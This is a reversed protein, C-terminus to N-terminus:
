PGGRSALSITSHHAPADALGVGLFDRLTPADAARWAIDREWDTGEFFGAFLLRHIGPALGPRGMTGASLGRM